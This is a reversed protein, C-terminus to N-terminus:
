PTVTITASGSMSEPGTSATYTATFTVLYDGPAASTTDVFIAAFDTEGATLRADRQFSTSSRESPYSILLGAPDNIVLSFDSTAPAHGTFAMSVWGSAYAPVAADTSVHSLAQGTYIVVPVKVKVKESRPNGDVAYSVQLDLKVDKDGYGAPVSVKLASFDIEDVLLEHGGMLGTWSGLNAPYSVAVGDPIKTAIVQFDTVDEFATWNLVLWADAGATVAATTRTLLDVGPNAMAVGPVLLTPVAVVLAMLLRGFSKM